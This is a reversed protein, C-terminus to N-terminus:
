GQLSSVSSNLLNLGLWRDAFLNYGLSWSATSNHGYVAQLSGTSPSLALAKWESIFKSAKRQTPCALIKPVM